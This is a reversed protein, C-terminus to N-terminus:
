WARNGFVNTRQLLPEADSQEVAARALDAEGLHTAGIVLAALFDQRIEVVRVADRVSQVRRGATRQRFVETAM